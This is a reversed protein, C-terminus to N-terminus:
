ELEIAFVAHYAQEPLAHKWDSWTDTDPNYEEIVTTDRGGCLLIRDRWVVASGWSHNERPGTHSRWQGKDPNYSMCCKEGGGLVYIRDSYVVSSGYTFGEQMYPMDAKKSWTKTDTDLVFTKSSTLSTHDMGGFVYIYHQYSVATHCYRAVPMDTTVCWAGTKKDLYEVSQLEGNESLGGLVYVQGGVCVSAHSSRAFNLDSVTTCDMTSLSLKWCLKVDRYNSSIGGTFVVGDGSLCASIQSLKRFIPLGKKVWLSQEEIWMYQHDGYVALLTSNSRSCTSSRRRATGMQLSPSSAHQYVVKALHLCNGARSRMLPEETVVDGLFRLSCHLLTVHELLKHFTDKRNEMDHRVWSVVAEFVPDESAVNLGKDKVYNEVETESMERFATTATLEQFKELMVQWTTQATEQQSNAKAIRHVAVCVSTNTNILKKLFTTCEKTLEPLMLSVSAPILKETKEVTLEINGSYIFSVVSTLTDFDIDAIDLINHELAEPNTIFKGRFFKSAAALLVKHCPISRGEAALMVDTLHDQQFLERLDEWVRSRYAEGPTLSATSPRETESSEDWVKNAHTGIEGAAMM